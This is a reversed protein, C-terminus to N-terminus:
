NKYGYVVNYRENGNEAGSSKVDFDVDWSGPKKEAVCNIAELSTCNFFAGREILMTSNPIVIEKLNKCGTFANTSIYVIGDPIVVSKINDRQAFAWYIGVVRKGNYTSPIEVNEVNFTCGTVIVGDQNSAGIMNKVTASEIESVATYSLYSDWKASITVDKEAVTKSFDWLKDGDYWGSFSYGARSLNVDPKKVLSGVEVKQSTIEVGEIHSDFKVTVYNEEENDCSCSAFCLCALALMVALFLLKKM